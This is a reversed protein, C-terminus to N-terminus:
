RMGVIRFGPMASGGYVQNKARRDIDDYMSQLADYTEKEKDSLKGTLAKQKLNNYQILNFGFEKMMDKRATEYANASRIREDISLKAEQNRLARERLARDQAQRNITNQATLLSMQDRGLAREALGQQKRASLLASIGSSAGQGINVMAYPSTGGMMGLFGQLVALYNDISKENELSAERKKIAAKMEDFLTQEAKTAADVPSAGDKINDKLETDAANSIKNADEKAAEVVKKEEKVSPKAPTRAIALAEPNQNLIANGVALDGMFPDSYGEFYPNGAMTNMTAEGLKAGGEAIAAPLVTGTISPRGYLKKLGPKIYKEWPSLAEIGEAAATAPPPLKPTSTTTLPYNPRRTIGEPTTIYVGDSFGPVKGGSALKVIGGEAFNSAYQRTETPVPGRRGNAIWEDVRGPGWNYAMAADKENGYRRLMANAYDIGVRRMEAVSDDQAPKVGFGPDRLTYPMTQMSGKAGKPSTLVNGKDDYSRGRSELHEIRGAFSKDQPGKSGSYRVGVGANRAGAYAEPNELIDQTLASSEADANAIMEALQAKQRMDAYYEENTEDEEPDYEDDVLDGGAFAVIGGGAMNQTPLNSQAADIGAVQTPQPQPNQPPIPQSPAAAMQPIGQQIGQAAQLVQDTVTKQPAGAALAQAEKQNKVLEAIMPVGIYAPITGNRVATELAAVSKLEDAKAIRSVINNM